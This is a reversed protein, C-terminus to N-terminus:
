VLRKLTELLVKQEFVSKTIYADAGAEIGKRRDEESAMSTVLIIPMDRYRSEQRIRETMSLGNMNPMEVDSVIADFSRSSLKFLADLGDAATVVEYGAAELIRKEWTRTTISDEVLLVARKTEVPEPKHPAAARGARKRVSKILDAPNLIACVAGTPLITSGSVNRVRKLFLSQPKLIVEQEDLLGDVLVGASEGGASLIVAALKRAPSPAEGSIGEQTRLELLRGLPAVPIPDGAVLITDHGELTFIEEPLILLTTRVSDLPLAYGGQGVSVILVRTAALTAPLQIKFACGSGPASHVQIAGKLREVSARVVDMGVGRGSIGTAVSRTSFGPAFILNQIEEVSMRSLEEERVLRRELAVRRIAGADLGRGDDSVDVFVNAGQQYTRVRVTATQPKGAQEREAPTEIGHDISNRIMHMLPAKMEEVIHKDAGAEGGDMVLRVNKGQERALDRAMRPFLNFIAAFPVLRVARVGEEIRASVSELRANDEAIDDRLQQLLEGARESLVRQEWLELLEDVQQLRRGARTKTVVLEGAQTMLQDLRRPEVRVTEIRFPSDPTQLPQGPDDMREGPAVAPGHPNDIDIGRIIDEVAVGAPVNSVAERVFKRIGDLARYLRSILNASLALDGRKATGLVDEFRHAITEVEAAGLMRAAGKLNHAERFIEGLTADDRPNFELHLLGADLRQLHEESETKFLSRLEEDEIYM